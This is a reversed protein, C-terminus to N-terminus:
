FDETSFTVVRTDTTEEGSPAISRTIIKNSGADITITVSFKGDSAPKSVIDEQNSSVIVTNEADTKGKIQVSRKESLSNNQPSDITLNIGNQASSTPEIDQVINQLRPPTVKTQQYLFFLLTTVVLGIAVAIFVIIIRERM